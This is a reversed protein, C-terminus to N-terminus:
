SPALDDTRSPLVHGRFAWLVLAALAVEVGLAGIIGGSPMGDTILSVLRGVPFAVYVSLAAGLAVPVLAPRVLGWLMLGGLAALGAGPARLESLLDPDPGLAIGYGAYFAHPACLIFAGISFATLGALGLTIRQFRTMTM